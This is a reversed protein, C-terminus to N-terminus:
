ETSPSSAYEEVVLESGKASVSILDPTFLIWQENQRDTSANVSFTRLKHGNLFSMELDLHPRSVLVSKIETWKMVQLERRVVDRDDECGFIVSSESELRWSCTYLWLHWEGHIAAASQRPDKRGFEMTLTSGVGLAVGWPTKGVLSDFVVESETRRM